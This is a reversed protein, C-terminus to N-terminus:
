LIGNMIVKITASSSLKELHSVLKTPVIADLAFDNTTSHRLPDTVGTCLSEGLVIWWERPSTRVLTAYGRASMLVDLDLGM